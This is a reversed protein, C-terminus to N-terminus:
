LTYQGCEQTKQITIKGLAECASTLIGLVLARQVSDVDVAGANARLLGFGLMILNLKRPNNRTLTLLHWSMLRGNASAMVGPQLIHMITLTHTAFMRWSAALQWVKIASPMNEYKRTLYSTECALLDVSNKSFNVVATISQVSSGIRCM